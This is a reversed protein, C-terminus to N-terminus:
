CHQVLLPIFFFCFVPTEKEVTGVVHGLLKAAKTPNEGGVKGARRERGPTKVSVQGPSQEGAGTNGRHSGSGRGLGGSM